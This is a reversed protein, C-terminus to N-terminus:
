VVVQLFRKRWLFSKKIQFGFKEVKTDKRSM